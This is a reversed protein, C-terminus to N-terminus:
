LVGQEILARLADKHKCGTPRPRSRDFWGAECGCLEAMGGVIVRFPGYPDPDLENELLFSRVATPLGLDREEQVMYFDTETRIVRRGHTLSIMLTGDCGDPGPLWQWERRAYTTTPPLRGALVPMM